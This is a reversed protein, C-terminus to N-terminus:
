EAGILNKSRLYERLEKKKKALRIVDPWTIRKVEEEPLESLDCFLDILQLTAILTNRNLTGRFLRLEVTHQNQLNISVYRDYQNRRKATTYIALLNDSLDIEDYFKAWRNLDGIKRRSFKTIERRFKHIFYILAGIRVQPVSNRQAYPIGSPIGANFSDKSIHVHLGCSVSADHSKFGADNCMGFVSGYDMSQHYDITCPHSVIEFGGPVSGDHKTYVETLCYGVKGAMVKPNAGDAAEVELGYFRGRQNEGFFVPEPKYYYERIASQHYERFCSNCVIHDSGVPIPNTTNEGCQMCEVMKKGRKKKCVDRHIIINFLKRNM